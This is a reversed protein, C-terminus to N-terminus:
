CVQRYQRNQEHISDIIIVDLCTEDTSVTNSLVPMLPSVYYKNQTPLWDGLHPLKM